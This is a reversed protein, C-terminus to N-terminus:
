SNKPKKQCSHTLQEEKTLEMGCYQCNIKEKRDKKNPSSRLQVRPALALDDPPSPPKFVYPYPYRDDDIDERIGKFNKKIIHGVNGNPKLYLLLTERGHKTGVIYTEGKNPTTVFRRPSSHLIAYKVGSIKISKAKISNWDSLFKILEDSIVWKDTSYVISNNGRILAAAIIESNELGFRFPPLNLLSFDLSAMIGIDKESKARESFLQKLEGMIFGRESVAGTTFRLHNLFEETTLKKKCKHCFQPQALILRTLAEFAKDVNKGTQINCEIYGSLKMSNAMKKGEEETVERDIKKDPRIGVLMIPIDGSKQHVINTWEGIYDLTQSRTVDYLLFAGNAGLCYTPLLFRFREEGGVDWLQLKIKKGHLDITKVHFDVGITLRESPNFLNYCFRKTFSTKGVSADGLLM